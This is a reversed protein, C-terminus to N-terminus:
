VGGWAAYGYVLASCPAVFAVLARLWRWELVRGVLEYISLSLAAACCALYPQFIWAIDIRTVWHGVGLLMFAGSPYASGDFTGPVAYTALNAEVLLKYTSPPLSSFSRGHTFLQDILAFWTATDDLRVYGLFTAEGSLIVPAGYVLLVGIAAIAPAAALRAGGWIFGVGALAGIATVPAAISATASFATLAGAVVIAAALGLPITLAGLAHDGAIWQVLAGWGLGIAALVLPFLVWSLIMSM